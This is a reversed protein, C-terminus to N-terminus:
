SGFFALALALALSVMIKWKLDSISTASAQDNSNAPVGTPSSSKNKVNIGLNSCDTGLACEKFCPFATVNLLNYYGDNCECKHTLASTKNCTGGGCDAWHCPDFVSDNTRKEKEAAPSPVRSCSFDVTCNPIVCPLFKLNDDQKSPNQLWGPECECVYGLSENSTKCTGKGCEVHKCVEDFISSFIPALTFNSSVSCPLLVLIVSCYFVVTHLVPGM